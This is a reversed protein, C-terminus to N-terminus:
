GFNKSDRHLVRVQMAGYPQFMDFLRKRVTEEQDPTPMEPLNSAHLDTFEYRTSAVVGGRNVISRPFYGRLFRVCLSPPSSPPSILTKGDDVRDISSANFFVSRETDHAPFYNVHTFPLPRLPLKFRLVATADVNLRSCSVSTNWCFLLTRLNQCLFLLAPLRSIAEGHIWPLVM